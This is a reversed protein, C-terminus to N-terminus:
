DQYVYHRDVLSGPKSPSNFQRNLVNAAVPFHHNSNTTAKFKRKTRARVGALRMLKAVTNVCCSHGRDLLEQHVRPSGYVQKRKVHIDEIEITLSEAQQETNSAPRNKWAYYGSRSVGFTECMAAVEFADSHEAIFRFRM